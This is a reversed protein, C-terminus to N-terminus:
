EHALGQAIIAATQNNVGLKQKIMILHETYNKCTMLEVNGDSESSRSPISTPPYAMDFSLMHGPTGPDSDM